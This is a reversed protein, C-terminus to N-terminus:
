HTDGYLFTPKWVFKGSRDIYGYRMDETRVFALGHHFPESPVYGHSVIVTKGTKDIYIWKGNKEVAAIGESFPETVEFQPKIVIKGSADIFGYVNGSKISALGESFAASRDTCNNDPSPPAAHIVSQGAPNVYFCDHGRQVIALNNSFYGVFDFQPAIAWNGTKDIFGWLSDPESSVAAAALGESFPYAYAFQIPIVIKGSKNIFGSKSNTTVLALGERFSEDDHDDSGINNYSGGFAVEYDPAIVIKGTKDIFGWLGDDDGREGTVQVNALGEHFEKAWSFKPTIVVAGTTDIYGWKGDREFRALGESFGGVKDFCLPIRVKGTHDIFGARDRDMVPFLDSEDLAVGARLSQHQEMCQEDRPIHADSLNGEPTVERGSCGGFNSPYDGCLGPPFDASTWKLFGWQSEYRWLMMHKDPFVLWDADEINLLAIQDQQSRVKEILDERGRAKMDLAFTQMAHDGFSNRHVFYLEAHLKPNERLFANLWPVSLVLSEYKDANKLFGDVGEVKNQNYLLVLHISLNDPLGPKHLFAQLNTEHPGKPKWSLGFEKDHYPNIDASQVTYVSKLAQLADGARGEVGLMKWEPEINSMVAQALEPAFRRGALRDQNVTGKPLLGCVARSIAVNYSEQKNDGSRQWPIMFTYQSNTRAEAASGDAFFVKVSVLPYDDMVVFGFVSPLIEAIKGPDTFTNEFLAKQSPLAAPFTGYMGAEVSVLNDKLWLQTIGLNEIDPKPIQAADLAAVLANVLEPAIREGNRFFGDKEAHIVVQANQSTDLGGWESQIEIRQVNKPAQASVMAVSLGLLILMRLSASLDLARMGVM